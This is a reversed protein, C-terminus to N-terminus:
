FQNWKTVFRRWFGMSININRYLSFRIYVSLEYKWYFMSLITYFKLVSILVVIVLFNISMYLISEKLLYIYFLPWSHRNRLYDLESLLFIKGVIYISSVRISYM